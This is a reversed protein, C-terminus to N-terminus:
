NKQFERKSLHGYVDVHKQFEKIGWEPRVSLRNIAYRDHLPVWSGATDSFALKYSESVIEKVTTNYLGYPYSFADLMISLENEIIEKNLHVTQRIEDSNLRTMCLHNHSHGGIENGARLWTRLDQWTAHDADYCAKPNWRNSQGIYASIVFLAAPANYKSLIPLGSQINDAYGDDFTILIGHQPAQRKGDMIEIAQSLSLFQYGEHNLFGIQEEFAEKSVATSANISGDILHYMLTVFM